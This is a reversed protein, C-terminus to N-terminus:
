GPTDTQRLADELEGATKTDGLKRALELGQMLWARAQDTRDLEVSVLGAMMYMPLYDAHADRLAAFVELADAHRNLRKYEMALAYRHFPDTSGDAVLRELMQLRQDMGVALLM